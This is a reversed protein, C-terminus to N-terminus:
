GIGRSGRAPPQRVAAPQPLDDSLMTYSKIYTDLVQRTRRLAEGGVALFVRRPGARLARVGRPFVSARSALYAFGAARFIRRVPM